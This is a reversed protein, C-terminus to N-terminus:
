PHHTHSPHQSRPPAPHPGHPTHTTEVDSPGEGPNGTLSELQRQALMKTKEGLVNGSVETGWSSSPSLSKYPMRLNNRGGGKCDCKGENLRDLEALLFDNVKKRRQ